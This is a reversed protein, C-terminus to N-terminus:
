PRGAADIANLLGWLKPLDVPKGLLHMSDSPRKHPQSSLVAIPIAALAPDKQIEAYFDWGNMV